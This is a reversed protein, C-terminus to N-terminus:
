AAAPMAGGPPSPPAGGAAPGGGLSGSVMGMMSNRQADQMLNRATTEQVKSDGGSAPAFKGLTRISNAVAQWPESNPQLGSLAEAM